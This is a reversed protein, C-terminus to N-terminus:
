SFFAEVTITNASTILGESFDFVEIDKFPGIISKNIYDASDKFYDTTQYKKGNLEIDIIHVRNEAKVIKKYEKGRYMHDDYFHDFEDKFVLDTGITYITTAGLICALHMANLSVSGVAMNRSNAPGTLFGEVAGDKYKRINSNTTFPHRTTKYINYSQDYKEIGKWNLIRPVSKSYSKESLMKVVKNTPSVKETVLHYDIIDDFYAFGHNVSIIVDFYQKLITKKDLIKKTSPGDAIILIRSNPHKNTFVEPTKYSLDAYQM